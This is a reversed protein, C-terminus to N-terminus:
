AEDGVTARLVEAMTTLGDRIKTRGDDRLLRMGEGTAQQRLKSASQKAIVLQRLADSLALLEYISIRGYYGSQHCQDCGRGSVVEGIPPDGLFAQEEPTPARREQCSPCIRRILRQALVGQITSAVLFPAVGMDMLRTVASPADNTHLTSFVLHGTLAAQVAIQATEQDRIEGVMIVDPAQRLMARLGAAFSLGINTRVHVQNVGALRYEVPDEVTILKRTPRNLFALTAYLTTTKGSGTPGTVLIMGYPRQALQQWQQAHTESMGLESLGRIAQSRDLLRMVIAEGHLAPLVSIRVDLPNAGIALQLRGDQPLRKEAINLGGLIKIRSIIPGQLAKPPHNVERLVGDIRYRVRVHDTLSEVHIDSARMRVAESLLSDVLRIIPEDSATAGASEASQAAPRGAAPTLPPPSAPATAVSVSAAPPAPAASAAPRDASAPQVPPRPSATAMAPPAPSIVASAQPPRSLHSLLQDLEQERVVVAELSLGLRRELWPFAFITLPDDIALVLGNDTQRVAAIRQTRCLEGPVRSAVSLEPPEIRRPMWGLQVALRKGIDPDRIIGLRNLVIGFREESKAQEQKAMEIQEPTAVGLDRLRALLTHQQWEKQAQMAIM